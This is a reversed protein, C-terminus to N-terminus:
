SESSYGSGDTCTLLPHGLPGLSFLLSASAATSVQLFVLRHLACSLSLDLCLARSFLSFYLSLALAPLRLCSLLLMSSVSEDTETNTVTSSGSQWSRGSLNVWSAAHQRVDRQLHSESPRKNKSTRRWRTRARTNECGAHTRAYAGIQM